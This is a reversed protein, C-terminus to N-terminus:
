RAQTNVAQDPPSVADAKSRRPRRPKKAIRTKTPAPEKPHYSRFRGRGRTKIRGKKILRRCRATVTSEASDLRTALFGATAGPFMAVLDVIRKEAAAESTPSAPPPTQVLVCTRGDARLQEYLALQDAEDRCEVLVSLPEDGGEDCGDTAEPNTWSVEPSALM